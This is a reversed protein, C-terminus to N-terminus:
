NFFLAWGLRLKRQPQIECQEPPATASSRGMSGAHFSTFLSRLVKRAKVGRESSRRVRSRFKEPIQFVNELIFLWTTQVYEPASRACHATRIRSALARTSELCPRMCCACGDCVMTFVLLEKEGPPRACMRYRIRESDEALNKRGCM